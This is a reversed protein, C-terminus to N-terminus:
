GFSVAVTSHYQQNGNRNTTEVGGALSECGTWKGFYSNPPHDIWIGGFLALLDILGRERTL